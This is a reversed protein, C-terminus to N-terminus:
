DASVEILNLPISIQITQLDKEVYSKEDNILSNTFDIKYKEKWEEEKAVESDIFARLFYRDAISFPRM